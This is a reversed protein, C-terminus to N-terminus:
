VPTEEVRLWEGGAELVAATADLMPRALLSAEVREETVLWPLVRQGVM